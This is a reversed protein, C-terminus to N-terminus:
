EKSDEPETTEEVSDAKTEETKKVSDAESEDMSVTSYTVM